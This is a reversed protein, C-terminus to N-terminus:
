AFANVFLFREVRLKFKCVGERAEELFASIAFEVRGQYLDKLGGWYYKLLCRQSM